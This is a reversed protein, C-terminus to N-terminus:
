LILLMTQEVQTLELFISALLPTLLPPLITQANVRQRVQHIVHLGCPGTKTVSTYKTDMRHLQTIVTTSVLGSTVIVVLQLKKQQKMKFLTLMPTLKELQRLASAMTFAQIM